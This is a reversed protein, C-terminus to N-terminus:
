VWGFFFTKSSVIFMSKNEDTRKVGHTSQFGAPPKVLTPSFAYYNASEGLAVQCVCLLRRGPRTTSATTYKLSTAACDSFYLGYGLCGIDTRTVGLEEVVMKPM